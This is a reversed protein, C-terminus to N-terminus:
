GEASASGDTDRNTLARHVRERGVVMRGDSKYPEAGADELVRKLDGNTWRGYADADLTTLRKLVDATLVRPTDGLVTAIDALPDRTQGHDIVTLTTVGDRLAKAR